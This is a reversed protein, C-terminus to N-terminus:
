KLILNKIIQDLDSLLQATKINYRKVKMQTFWDTWYKIIVDEEYRNKNNPNIGLVLIELDSLDDNAFTM